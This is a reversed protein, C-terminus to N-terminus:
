TNLEHILNLRVGTRGVQAGDRLVSRYMKLKGKEDLYPVFNNDQSFEFERYKSNHFLVISNYEKMTDSETVLHSAEEGILDIVISTGHASQEFIRANTPVFLSDGVAFIHSRKVRHASLDSRINFYIGEHKISCRFPEDLTHANFASFLNEGFNWVKPIVGHLAVDVWGIICGTPLDVFNPINGLMQANHVLMQWEVPYSSLPKKAEVAYIFVRCPPAHQPRKISVVPMLGAVQMSAFPQETLLVHM